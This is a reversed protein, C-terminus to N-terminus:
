GAGPALRPQLEPALCARDLPNTPVVAKVPDFHVMGDHGITIASPHVYVRLGQDHRQKVELCLPVLMAMAEDLSFRRGQRGDILSRLTVNGAPAAHAARASSTTVSM